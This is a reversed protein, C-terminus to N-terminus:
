SLMARPLMSQHWWSARPLMTQSDHKCSFYIWTLIINQTSTDLGSCLCGLVLIFPSQCYPVHVEVQDSYNQDSHLQTFFNLFYIQNTQARYQWDVGAWQLLGARITEENGSCTWIQIWILDLLNDQKLYMINCIEVIYHHGFWTSRAPWSSPPHSCWPGGQRTEPCIGELPTMTDAKDNKGIEVNTDGGLNAQTQFLNCLHWVHTPVPRLSGDHCSAPQLFGDHCPAPLLFSDRREPLPTCHQTNHIIIYFITM